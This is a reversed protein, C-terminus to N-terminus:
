KMDSKDPQPPPVTNAEKKKSQYLYYGFVGIVEVALFAGVGYCQSM